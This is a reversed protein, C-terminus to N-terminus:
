RRTQGTAEDASDMVSAVHRQHDRESRQESVYDAIERLENAVRRLAQLRVDHQAKARTWALDGQPYYDRQNPGAGEVERLATWVARAATNYQDILSAASTGNLHVSPKITANIESM